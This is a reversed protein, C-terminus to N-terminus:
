ALLLRFALVGVGSATVESGVFRQVSWALEQTVPVPADIHWYGATLEYGLVLVLGAIMLQPRIPKQACGWVFALVGFVAVLDNVLQRPHERLWPHADLARWVLAHIVLVGLLAGIAQSTVLNTVRAQPGVAAHPPVSRDFTTPEFSTLYTRVTALVAAVAVLTTVANAAVANAATSGLVRQLLIGCSVVLALGFGTAAGLATTRRRATSDIGNM